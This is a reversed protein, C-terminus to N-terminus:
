YPVPLRTQENIPDFLYDMIALQGTIRYQPTRYPDSKLRMIEVGLM